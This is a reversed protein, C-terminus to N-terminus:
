HEDEMSKYGGFMSSILGNREVLDNHWGIYVHAIVFVAIFWM